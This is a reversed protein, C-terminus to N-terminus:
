EGQLEECDDFHDSLITEAEHGDTDAIIQWREAIGERDGVPIWLDESYNFPTLGGIVHGCQAGLDLSFAVGELSGSRCLSEVLTIRVDASRGYSSLSIGMEYEEDSSDFPEGDVTWGDETFDGAIESLKARFAERYTESWLTDVADRYADEEKEDLLARM